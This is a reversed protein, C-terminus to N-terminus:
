PATPDPRTPQPANRKKDTYCYAWYLAGFPIVIRLLVPRDDTNAAVVLSISGIVFALGMDGLHDSENPPVPAHGLVGRSTERDYSETFPHGVLISGFV